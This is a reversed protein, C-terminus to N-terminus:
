SNVCAVIINAMWEGIITLENYDGMRIILNVKDLEEGPNIYGDARDDSLTLGSVAKQVIADEVDFAELLTEMAGKALTLVRSIRYIRDETLLAQAKGLETIKLFENRSENIENQRAFYGEWALDRQKKSTLDAEKLRNITTMNMLLDEDSLNLLDCVNKGIGYARENKEANAKIIKGVFPLVEFNKQM